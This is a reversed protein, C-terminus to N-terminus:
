IVKLDMSMTYDEGSFSHSCEEVLFYQDIGLDSIKVTLYCGARAVPNGLAELKLKKTERNKLQALQDMLKQIQAVNQNEDVVQYYQLLGWKAINPSDKSIYVERRGTQKNDRVLKIRNYTESDISKEFSYGYMLSSDGIVLDLKMDRADRITLKGFDDYFNYINGTHIVTQDLAKCIIDMLKQNDEAMSAIVYKTDVIHGWKLNFDNAIRKVIAAATMNQLVYSDNYMLYRMQDYCKVSIEEENGNSITFVYGYFLPHDDWKVRVVDGNYISMKDDAIFSFDFSAPKGIRSTKWTASSVLESINWVNGDKNDLEITLM